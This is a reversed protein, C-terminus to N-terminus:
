RKRTAKRKATKRRPVGAKRMAIAVAQKPPYGERRLTRINSSVVARSRGKRLPMLGAEGEDGM